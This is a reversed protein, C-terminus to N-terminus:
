MENVGTAITKNSQNVSHHYWLELSIYYKEKRRWILNSELILGEMLEICRIM